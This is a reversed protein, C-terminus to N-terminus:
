ILNDLVDEVQKETLKRLKKVKQYTGRGDVVDIDYRGKNKVWLVYQNKTLTRGRFTKVARRVGDQSRQALKRKANLREAKDVYFIPTGKFTTKTKRSVGRRKAKALVIRKNEEYSLRGDVLANVDILDAKSKLLKKIYRVQTAKKLKRAM